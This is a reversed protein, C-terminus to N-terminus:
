KEERQYPAGSAAPWSAKGVFLVLALLTVVYPFAVMAQYPIDLNLTQMRLQLADATGFLLSGLFAGVPEWKGFVIATYAIFGRGSTMNQQFTNLVGISLFAGALGALFGCFLLSLYRVKIVSIGVTDAAHPHEGVARVKLGWTTRYLVFWITPVLLFALYVLPLHNFFIPGLVPIDGLLPIKWVSLSPVQIVNQIVEGSGGSFAMVYLLSSLGTAGMNLAVCTVIQNAGVSVAMVAYILGMILGFLGAVLLGVWVNNTLGSGIIGGITGMLMMSEMSFTVLGAREAIIGGMTALILPTAMRVIAAYFEVSGFIQLLQDLM